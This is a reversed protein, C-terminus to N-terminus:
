TAPWTAAYLFTRCTANMSAMGFDADPFIRRLSRFYPYTGLYTNVHWKMINPACGAAFIFIAVAVAVVTTVALEATHNNHEGIGPM